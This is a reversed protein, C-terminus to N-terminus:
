PTGYLPKDFNVLYSIYPRTANLYMLSSVLQKFLTNYVEAGEGTKLLKTRPVIPNKVLNCDLMNFKDLVDQYINKQGIFIGDCRLLVEIGLFYQMKDLDTMAIENIM